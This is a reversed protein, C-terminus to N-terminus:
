FRYTGSLGFSSREVLGEVQDTLTAPEQSAGGARRPPGAADFRTRIEVGVSFPAEAHREAPAPAIQPLVAQGGEEASSPPDFTLDLPADDTAEGGAPPIGDPPIAPVSSLREARAACSLTLLISLCLFWRRM